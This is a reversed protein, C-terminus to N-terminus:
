LPGSSTRLRAVVTSSRPHTNRRVLIPLATNGGYWRSTNKYDIKNNEAGVWTAIALDKTFGIFWCDKSQQTTGTKGGIQNGNNLLKYTNNIRAGTGDKTVGRLMTSMKYASIPSLVRSKKEKYRYLVKGNNDQIM